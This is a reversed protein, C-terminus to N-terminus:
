SSTKAKGEEDRERWGALYIAADSCRGVLAPMDSIMKGFRARDPYVVLDRLFERQDAQTPGNKRGAKDLFAQYKVLPPRRIVVMGMDTKLSWIHVGDTGHEGELRELTEAEEAERTATEAERQLDDVDRKAARRTEIEDRKARAADITAQLAVRQEQTLTDDQGM